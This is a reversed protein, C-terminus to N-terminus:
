IPPHQRRHTAAQSEEQLPLRVLAAARRRCGSVGQGQLAVGHTNTNAEARSPGRLNRRRPDTKEDLGHFGFLPDVRGMTTM